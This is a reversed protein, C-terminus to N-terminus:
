LSEADPDPPAVTTVDHLLETFRDENAGRPERRLSHTCRCTSAAREPLHGGTMESDVGM